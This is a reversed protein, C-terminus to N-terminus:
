ATVAEPSRAAQAIRVAHRAVHGPIDV